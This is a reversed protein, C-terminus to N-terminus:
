VEGPGRWPVMPSVGSELKPYSQEVADAFVKQPINNEECWDYGNLTGEEPAEEYIEEALHDLRYRYEEFLEPLSAENLEVM